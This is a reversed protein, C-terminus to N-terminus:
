DQLNSCNCLTDGPVCGCDDLGSDEPIQCPPNRVRGHDLLCDPIPTDSCVCSTDDSRDCRWLWSKQDLTGARLACTVGIPCDCVIRRNAVHLNRTGPGPGNVEKMVLFPVGPDARTVPQLTSNKSTRATLAGTDDQKTHSATQASGQAKRERERDPSNRWSCLNLLGLAIVAVARPIM